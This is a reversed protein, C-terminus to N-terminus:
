KELDRVCKRGAVVGAKVVQLFGGLRSTWASALYLNHVPVRSVKMITRHMGLLCDFGLIAGGPNQTYRQFTRPTACDVVACHRKIGPYQAFLTELVAETCKKKENRYDDDSMGTWKESSVGGLVSLVTKGPPAATDDTATPAIVSLGRPVLDSDRASLCRDLDADPFMTTIHSSIGTSSLPCDLGLHLQLLSLSPTLRGLTKVYRSPVNEDGILAHVLAPTNVNAIVADAPYTEGGGTEVATARGGVTRIRTVEAGTVIRAGLGALRDHLAVALASGGGRITYMGKVCLLYFMIMFNVAPFQRMPIGYFVAPHYLLARLAPDTIFRSLYAHTSTGAHYLFSPIKPVFRTAIAFPSLAGEVTDYYLPAFRLLDAGFATLGARQHLFADSLAELLERFEVPIQVSLSGIRAHFGKNIKLFKVNNSVGLEHMVRDFPGGPGAAPAAHLSPDFVFGGRSFSVAYGGTRNQKEILTVSCGAQACAVGASLGGLGGGVIVVHRGM